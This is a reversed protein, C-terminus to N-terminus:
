RGDEAGAATTTVRVRVAEAPFGHLLAVSRAAGMATQHGHVSFVVTVGNMHHYFDGDPHRVLIAWAARPPDTHNM